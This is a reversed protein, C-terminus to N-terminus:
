PNDAVLMQSAAYLFPLVAWRLTNRNKLCGLFDIQSFVDMGRCFHRIVSELLQSALRSEGMLLALNLMEANDYLDFRILGFKNRVAFRKFLFHKPDQFSALLYQYGRAVCDEWGELRVIHASKVINKLVICSHFCDIFSDGYPSYLWSGDNKQHRRIYAYLKRAKLEIRRREDHRAFPLFLCHAYMNYSVANIVTRDRFTGYSTALAEEDEEMVRLDRDFFRFISEIVSDYRGDEVTEAAQVFAELAYPTITSFPMGAEYTVDASVAHPFGLGWCYGAYGRCTHALLWQLHREADEFLDADRSSRHINLLCLAAMARAHPHEMPTYWERLRHNALHDALALVAAPVLGASPRCHYLTKVRFGLDTKWMDYPDYSTLDSRRCFREILAQL